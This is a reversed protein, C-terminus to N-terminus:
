QIFEQMNGLIYNIRNQENYNLHSSVWENIYPQSLLKKFEIKLYKLIESPSDRLEKWIVKRNNLLYIIDEFDSSTRGDNNGRGKYAELKSAIFYSPPFIKITNNRDIVYDVANRYGSSYWKNTFGLIKEETPMIDVTIGQYIYRCIIRSDLDNLFGIERLKEEIVIQNKYTAIEIVVDIDDTPRVEEQFIEDVYLSVTAGGVFVFAAELKSLANNITKIRQINIRHSM